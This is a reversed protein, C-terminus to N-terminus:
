SNILARRFSETSRRQARLFVAIRRSSRTGRAKAAETLRLLSDFVPGPGAGCNIGFVDPMEDGLEALVKVADEPTTGLMTHGEVSFSLQAVVPLKSVARATRVAVALEDLSSMTEIIFLDVGGALLAEMQEQFVRMMESESMDGFPALLKGTPGIAGAVFVPQGAVERANRAVKAAWVNLKWVDNDLGYQTLRTRNGAFSNTEILDAGANIYDIHVQQVMDPKTLNLQEFSAEPAAGRSYLLSGMAGDTLLPREKLAQLFPHTM